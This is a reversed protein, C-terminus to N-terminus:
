GRSIFVFVAFNLRGGNQRKTKQISICVWEWAREIARAHSLCACENSRQSAGAWDNSRQTANVMGYGCKSSKRKVFDVNLSFKPQEDIKRRIRSTRMKTDIKSQCFNIYPLAAESERPSKGERAKAISVRVMQLKSQPLTEM